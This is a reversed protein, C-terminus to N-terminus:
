TNSYLDDRLYYIVFFLLVTISLEQINVIIVFDMVTEIPFLLILGYFILFGFALVILQFLSNKLIISVLFNLYQSLGITMITLILWIFDNIIEQFKFNKIFFESIILYSILLFISIFLNLVVSNKFSSLFDKKSKKYKSILSKNYVIQPIKAAKLVKDVIDYVGLILNGLVNGLILKGGGSVFIILFSSSALPWSNKFYKQYNKKTFSLDKLNKLLKYVRNLDYIFIVSLSLPYSYIGFDLILAILLILLGLGKSIIRYKVLGEANTKALFYTSLGIIESLNAPIMFLLFFPNRTYLTLIIYPFLAVTFNVLKFIIIEYYVRINMKSEVMLRSGLIDMGFVCFILYFNSITLLYVLEGYIEITLFYNLILLSILPHLIMILEAWGVRQINVNFIM